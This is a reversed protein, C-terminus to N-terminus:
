LGSGKDPIRLIGRVLTNPIVSGDWGKAQRGLRVIVLDESPIAWVTRGGGGEMWIADAAVFAEGHEVGYGTGPLYERLGAPARGSWVQLGYLPNAKSTTAMTAVWGAPLVRRGLYIGDHALLSGLRLWDRPNARFCCYVAPMGNPRDLYFEARGAGLPKWIREEIWAAYDTHLARGLIVGLIQPNSNAFSFRAGPEHELRFSLAAKGFDTGLALRTNKATLSGLKALGRELRSEGAHLPVADLPLEELGSTSQLLQRLTIRGRPDGRWEDLYRGAPDDLGLAGSQVADGYALGVLSRSMSRGSFLTDATMGQWYQELQIQGRHLVLLAVSNHEGAWAAAADLAPQAISREAGSATPFFPGSGGDIVRVPQYFSEPWEGPDGPLEIVRKFYPWDAAVIGIGAAVVLLVVIAPWLLIRQLM